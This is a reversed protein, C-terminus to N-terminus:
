NDVVIRTDSSGCSISTTTTTNSIPALSPAVRSTSAGGMSTISNYSNACNGIQAFGDFLGITPDDERHRAKLSKGSPGFYVKLGAMISQTDKGFSADAFFTPSVQGTDWLVEVGINGVTQDFSREIGAKALFNDTFYYSVDAKGSFYTDESLGFLDLRDAGVFGQVTWNGAYWEAEVGFRANTVDGLGNGFDHRTYHAYAGILGTDPRRWFLHAGIGVSNVDESGAGILDVDTRQFGGDIQLGFREGLPTTVAGQIFYGNASDFNLGDDFDYSVYGSEIKGNFGSVAPFGGLDSTTLDAAFSAGTSVCLICFSTAINKIAM